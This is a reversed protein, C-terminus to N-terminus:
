LLKKELWIVGLFLYSFLLAGSTDAILDFPDYHRTPTWTQHLEDSLGYLICWAVAILACWGPRINTTRWLALSVLMGLGGYELLHLLKDSVGWALPTGSEPLSSGWFILGMYAFVTAWVAIGTAKRM